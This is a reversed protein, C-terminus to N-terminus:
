LEAASGITMHVFWSFETKKKPPHPLHVRLHMVFCLSIVEKSSVIEIGVLFADIM